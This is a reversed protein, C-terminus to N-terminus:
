NEMQAYFDIIIAVKMEQELLANESMRSPMARFINQLPLGGLGM